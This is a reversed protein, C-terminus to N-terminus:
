GAVEENHGAVADPVSEFLVNNGGVFRLLDGVPDHALAKLPGVVGQRQNRPIQSCAMFSDKDSNDARYAPAKRLQRAVPPSSDSCAAYSNPRNATACPRPTSSM